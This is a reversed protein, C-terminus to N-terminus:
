AVKAKVRRAFEAAEEVSRLVEAHGKWEALFKVQSPELKGKPQKIELFYTAGQYGAALDVPRGIARVSFGSAELYAVIVAQNGDVQHVQYKGM